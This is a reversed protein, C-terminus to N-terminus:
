EFYQAWSQQKAVAKGKKKSAAPASADASAEAAAPPLETGMGQLCASVAAALEKKEPDSLLWRLRQLWEVDNLKITGDNVKQRMVQLSYIVASKGVMAEKGEVQVVYFNPIREMVKVWFSGELQAPDPSYGTRFKVLLEQLAEARGRSAHSAFKGDAGDLFAKIREISASVDGQTGAAPLLDVLRQDMVAALKPACSELFDLEIRMSRCMALLSKANKCLVRKIDELSSIKDHSCMSAASNRATKLSEIAAEPVISEQSSWEQPALLEEHRLFPLGGRRGICGKKLAVWLRVECEVAPSAVKLEWSCGLYDILVARKQHGLIRQYDAVKSEAAKQYAAISQESFKNQVLTAVLEEL